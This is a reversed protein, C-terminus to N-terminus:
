FFYLIIAVLLIISAIIDARVIKNIETNYNGTLRAIVIFSLMSVIGAVFAAIQFETRWAAVILFIGLLGFLVSRHTMLILLNPDELAVGYLALLNKSGLVGFVPVLNILGVLILIGSIGIKLM